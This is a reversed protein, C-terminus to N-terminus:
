KQTNHANVRGMVQSLRDPPIPDGVQGHVGGGGPPPPGNPPCPYHEMYCQLIRIIARLCAQVQQLARRTEVFNHVNAKINCSLPRVTATTGLFAPPYPPTGSPPKAGATQRKGPTATPWLGIAM